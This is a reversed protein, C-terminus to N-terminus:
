ARMCNFMKRIERKVRSLLDNGGYKKVIKHFPKSKIDEWVKDRDCPRDYPKILPPQMSSTLSTETYNLDVSCKLFFDLGKRNNALVLSVGKNVDFVPAAKRLAGIIM